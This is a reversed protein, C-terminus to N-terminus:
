LDDAPETTWGARVLNKLMPNLPVLWRLAPVAEIDADQVATMVEVSEEVPRGTAELVSRIESPSVAGRFNPDEIGRDLLGLLDHARILVTVLRAENDTLWEPCYHHWIRAGIAAHCGPTWINHIKGIDHLLMAVRVARRDAPDLDHTNVVLGAMIAHQYTEWGQHTPKQDGRQTKLIHKVFPDRPTRQEELLTQDLLWERFEEDPAFWPDKHPLPARPPIPMPSISPTVSRHWERIREVWVSEASTFTLNAKRGGRENEHIAHRMAEFTTSLSKPAYNLFTATLGPYFTLLRKATHVAIKTLVLPELIGHQLHHLAKTHQFRYVPVGNQLQLGGCGAILPASAWALRMVAVENDLSTATLREASLVNWRVKPAKAELTTQTKAVAYERALLVHVQPTIFVPGQKGGFFPAYYLDGIISASPEIAAVMELYWRAWDPFESPVYQIEQDTSLM